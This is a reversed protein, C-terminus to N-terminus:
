TQVAAAAGAQAAGLAGAPRDITLGELVDVLQPEYKAFEKTPSTATATYGRGDEAYYLQIQTVPEGDPPTWRFRRLFGSRGGFLTMGEFAVELYGPFEKRLLEGQAEAYAKADLSPELPESSAIVNAQGSPALLTIQEKPFWGEPLPASITPIFRSVMERIRSSKTALIAYHPSNTRILLGLRSTFGKRRRENTGQPHGGASLGWTRM